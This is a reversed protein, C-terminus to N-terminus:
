GCGMYAGKMAMGTLFLFAVLKNIDRVGSWMGLHLLKVTIDTRRPCSVYRSSLCLVHSWHLYPCALFCKWKFFIAITLAFPFCLVKKKLWKLTKEQSYKHFKQGGIESLFCALPFIDHRTQIANEVGKFDKLKYISYM